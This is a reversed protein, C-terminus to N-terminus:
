TYTRMMTAPCDAPNRCSFEPREYEKACYWCYLFGNVHNASTQSNIQLAFLPSLNPTRRTRFFSSVLRNTFNEFSERGELRLGESPVSLVVVYEPVVQTLTTFSLVNNQTLIDNLTIGSYYGADETIQLIAVLNLICKFSQTKELGSRIRMKRLDHGQSINNYLSYDTLSTDPYNYLTRPMDSTQFNFPTEASFDVIHIHCHGFYSAICNGVPDHVDNSLVLVAPVSLSFAVLNAAYFLQCLAKM